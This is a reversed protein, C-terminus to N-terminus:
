GKFPQTPGRGLGGKPCFTYKEQLMVKNMLKDTASEQYNKTFKRKFKKVIKEFNKRLKKEGPNRQFIGFFVGFKGHIPTYCINNKM